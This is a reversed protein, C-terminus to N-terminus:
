PQYMVHIPVCHQDDLMLPPPVLSSNHNTKARISLLTVLIAEATSLVRASIAPMSEHVFHFLNNIRTDVLSHRHHRHSSGFSYHIYLILDYLDM